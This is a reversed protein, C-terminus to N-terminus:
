KRKKKPKPRSSGRTRALRQEELLELRKARRSYSVPTGIVAGTKTLLYNFKWEKNDNLLFQIRDASFNKHVDAAKEFLETLNDNTLASLVTDPNNTRAVFEIVPEGPAVIVYTVPRNKPKILKATNAISAKLFSYFRTAEDLTVEIVKDGAKDIFKKAAFFAVLAEAMKIIVEPDPIASKRGFYHVQFDVDTGKTIETVLRKTAAKSQFNVVDVAIAYGVPYNTYKDNFPNRDTKSEEKWLEIGEWEGIHEREEFIDQLVVLQYEGDETREVWARTTKGRPPITSDHEVTIIPRGGENISKAFAELAEKTLKHFQLDLHTTAIIRREIM